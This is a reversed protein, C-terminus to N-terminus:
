GLAQAIVECSRTFDSDAEPHPGKSLTVEGSIFEGTDLDFTDAFAIIGADLLVPGNATQIKGALGKIVPHFTITGAAEDVVPATDTFAGASSLMVSTGNLPNTLTAKYSGTGKVSGDAYVFFNNTAVVEVDVAIGCAVASFSESFRDHYQEIPAGALAAAPTIALVAVLAVLVGRTAARRRRSPMPTDSQRNRLFTMPSLM